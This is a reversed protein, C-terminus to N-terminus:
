NDSEPAPATPGNNVYRSSIAQVAQQTWTGTHYYAAATEAKLYAGLQRFTPQGILCIWLGIVLINMLYIVIYSFLHGHEQVDPQSVETLMHITFTLHFSWTFGVAGIWWVKHPEMPIWLNTLYYAALVLVTYFPFFYPALTIIFNTKSLEVHGGERGVKMKGIRAGMLLAWLAHTLEHGLVYTRFPRPLIFFLLVWLLFGAPFAWGSPDNVPLGAASTKYLYYVAATVGWATPLLLLGILGKLLRRM